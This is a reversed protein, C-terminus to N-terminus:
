GPEPFHSSMGKETALSPGARQGIGTVGKAGRKTGQRSARSTKPPRRGEGRETRQMGRSERIFTPHLLGLGKGEKSVQYNAFEANGSADCM